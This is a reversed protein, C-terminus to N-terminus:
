YNHPSNHPTHPFQPTEGCSPATFQLLGFPVFSGTFM